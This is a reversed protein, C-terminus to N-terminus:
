AENKRIRGRGNCTPCVLTTEKDLTPRNRKRVVEVLNLKTMGVVYPKNKDKRFERDLKGLVIDINDQNKMDIFDV